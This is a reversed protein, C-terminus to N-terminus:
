ALQGVGDYRAFGTGDVEAREDKLAREGTSGRWPETVLVQGFDIVQPHVMWITSMIMSKKVQAIWHTRM